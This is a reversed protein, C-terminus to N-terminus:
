TIYYKFIGHTVPQGCIYKFNPSSPPKTICYLNCYYLAKNYKTSIYSTQSRWNETRTRVMHWIQIGTWCIISQFHGKCFLSRRTSILWFLQPLSEKGIWRIPPVISCSLNIAKLKVNKERISSLCDWWRLSAAQFLYKMHMKFRTWISSKVKILTTEIYMGCFIIHMTHKLKKDKRQLICKSRENKVMGRSLHSVRLRFWGSSFNKCM